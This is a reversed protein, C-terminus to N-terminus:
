RLSVPEMKNLFEGLKRCFEKDKKYYIEKLELHGENNEFFLENILEDASSSLTELWKIHEEALNGNEEYYSIMMEAEYVLSDSGVVDADCQFFERYRGKQPRDARWV